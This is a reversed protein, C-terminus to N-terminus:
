LRQKYTLDNFGYVMRTGPRQVKELMEIDKILYPRWAQVCYRLHLRVLPKYLQLMTREDKYTFTRTIM